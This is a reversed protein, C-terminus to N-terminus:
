NSVAVTSGVPRGQRSWEIQCVAPVLRFPLLLSFFHCVLVRYFHSCYFGALRFICHAFHKIPPYLTANCYCCYCFGCCCCCCHCLRFCRRTPLLLVCKAYMDRCCLGCFTTCSVVCLMGYVRVCVCACVCM